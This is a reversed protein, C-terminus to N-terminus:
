PKAGPGNGTVAAIIHDLNQAAQQIGQNINAQTNEPPAAVKPASSPSAAEQSSDTPGLNPADGGTAIIIHPSM